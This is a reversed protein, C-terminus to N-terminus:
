SISLSLRFRQSTKSHNGPKPTHDESRNGLASFSPPHAILFLDAFDKPRFLKALSVVGDAASRLSRAKKNIGSGGRRKLSPFLAQNWNMWVNQRGPASLNSKINLAALDEIQGQAEATEM